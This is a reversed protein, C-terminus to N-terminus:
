REWERVYRWGHARHRALSAAQQRTIGHNDAAVSASPFRGLPTKVPRARPHRERDRLHRYDDLERRAAIARDAADRRAQPTIDAANRQVTVCEVNELSYPGTDGKRAM